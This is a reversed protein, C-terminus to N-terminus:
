LRLFATPNSLVIFIDVKKNKNKKAIGGSKYPQTRTVFNPWYTVQEPKM